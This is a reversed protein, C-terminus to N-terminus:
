EAYSICFIRCQCRTIGSPVCFRYRHCTDRQWRPTGLDGRMVNRLTMLALQYRNLAQKYDPSEFNHGQGLLDRLARLRRFTDDAARVIPAPALLMIQERTAKLNASRRSARCPWTPTRRTAVEGSRGAPHSFRRRDNGVPHAVCGVLERRSHLRLCRTSGSRSSGATGPRGAGGVGMDSRWGAPVCAPACRRSEM